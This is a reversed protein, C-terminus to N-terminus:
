NTGWGLWTSVGRGTMADIQDDDVFDLEETFLRLAESYSCPLRTLDSGWFVREAGFADVIKRIRPQLTPFPFPDSVYSPLSSAKVAVNPWQALKLVRNLVPDIQGDRLAPHLGVHDIMIRLRPHRSAIHSLSEPDDPAFVMLPIGLDEAAPWLWDATGDSLWQATMGPMFTLRLGFVGPEQILSPLRAPSEPDDVAIRGMVAFRDPYRSWADLCVDNRDGEFSPPVLVARDVGAEDMRPILQEVTFSAGHAFAKGDRIWPRNATESAWLHVQSDVIM